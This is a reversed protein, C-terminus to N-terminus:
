KGKDSIGLKRRFQDIEIKGKCPKLSFSWQQVNKIMQIKFALRLKFKSM